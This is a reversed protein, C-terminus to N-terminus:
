WYASTFRFFKQTFALCLRQSNAFLNNKRTDYKSHCCGFKIYTIGDNLLSGDLFTILGLDSHSDAIVGGIKGLV